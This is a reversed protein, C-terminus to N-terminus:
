VELKKDDSQKKAYVRRVAEAEEVLDGLIGNIFKAAKADAFRHSLEVAESVAV